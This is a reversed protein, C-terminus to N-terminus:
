HSTKKHGSEFGRLSKKQLIAAPHFVEKPRIIELTFFSQTHSRHFENLTSFTEISAGLSFSV